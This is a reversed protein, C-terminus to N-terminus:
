SNIMIHVYYYNEKKRMDFKLEYYNRDELYVKM